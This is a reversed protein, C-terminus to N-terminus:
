VLNGCVKLSDAAELAEDRAEEYRHNAFLATALQSRRVPIRRLDGHQEEISLAEKAFELAQELKGTQVLIESAVGLRIALSHPRHLTREIQLAELIYREGVEPQGAYVWVFATNNLSSSLRTSDNM